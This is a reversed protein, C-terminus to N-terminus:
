WREVPRDLVERVIVLRRLTVPDRLLAAIGAAAAPAAPSAVTPAQREAAAGASLHAVEHAFAGDVHRSVDAAHGGLSGLAAPSPQPSPPGAAGRQDRAAPRAPTGPRPPVQRPAADGRRRREAASEVPRVVERRPVAPQPAARDGSGRRIMEDIQRALERHREADDGRPRVPGDPANRGANGFLNRVQAVIWFLVALVALLGEIGDIGAALPLPATM